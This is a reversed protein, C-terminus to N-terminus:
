KIAEVAEEGDQATTVDWGDQSFREKLVRSLIDEDEAILIKNM